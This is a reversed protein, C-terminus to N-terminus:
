APTYDLNASALYNGSAGLGAMWILTVVSVKGAASTITPATGGSWKVAAPWTVTRTGTADQKLVLLYRYGDKPNSLTFTANGTLTVLQTNSNNWNLTIATASNGADHTRAGYQGSIKLADTADAAGGIGVRAFQPTGTTGLNASPLNGTVDTALNVISYVVDTGDSRLVTGAAGKPLRTWAGGVGQSTIIDGRVPSAAAVDPHSASLLNHAAVTSPSWVRDGRLFTTSDPTGTGLRAAAVDGVLAGAPVNVLGTADSSWAPDTGNSKLITNAGGRALRTWKPTAGQGTILDGRVVAAAIADTHTASLLVHATGAVGSAYAVWGTNGAGSEKVYLTTGATGDTRRYVAGVPATVIGEPSGAGTHRLEKLLIFNQRIREPSQYGWKAGAIWPGGGPAFFDDWAM